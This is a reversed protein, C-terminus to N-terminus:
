TQGASTLVHELLQAQPNATREHYTFAGCLVCVWPPGSGRCAFLFPSGSSSLAGSARAQPLNKAFLSIFPQGVNKAISDVLYLAPLKHKPPCQAGLTMTLRLLSPFLSHQVAQVAYRQPWSQHQRYRPWM